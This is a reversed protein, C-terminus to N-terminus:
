IQRVPASPPCADSIEHDHELIAEIVALVDTMLAVDRPRDAPRTKNGHFLINRVNWMADLLQSTSTVAAGQPGFALGPNQVLLMKPPAELLTPALGSEHVSTYFADTLRQALRIRSALAVDGEGERQLIRAEKLAFELRAFTAFFRLTLEPNLGNLLQVTTLM